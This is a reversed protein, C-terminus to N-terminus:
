GKLGYQSKLRAVNLEVIGTAQHAELLPVGDLQFFQIRPILSSARRPIKGMAEAFRALPLQGEVPARLLVDLALQLEEVDSARRGKSVERFLPSALLEAVLPHTPPPDAATPAPVQKPKPPPTPTATFLSTQPAADPAPAATVKRPAPLRAGSWWEPPAAPVTELGEDHGGVDFALWTPALLACPVVVEALSLGGHAGKTTSGWMLDERWAAAIRTSGKPRWTDAPLELEEPLPAGTPGLTRYRQGGDSGAPLKRGRLRGGAVHGHDAVLLVARKYDAALKLISSLVPVQSLSLEAHLQQAGSLDDDVANVVVAAVRDASGLVESLRQPVEGTLERKVLLAPGHPGAFPALAANQAWRKADDGESGPVHSAHEKGAFFASRSVGTLTPISALVPRRDQTRLPRWTELDAVLQALNARSMGDMLVVLLRRHEFDELFPRVIKRTVAHLPLVDKDPRGLEHWALLGRAFREDDADRVADAATLLARLAVDLPEDTTAHARVHARCWDVYGGEHNYTRAVDLLDTWAGQAEPLPRAARWGLWTALRAAFTHLATATSSGARHKALRDVLRWVATLEDPSALAGVLATALDDRLARYGPKLWLSHRALVSLGATLHDEARKCAAGVVLAQSAELHILVEDLAPLLLADVAPRALDPDFTHSIVVRVAHLLQLDGHARAAQLVLLWALLDAGRETTWVRRLLPGAEGARDPRGVWADLEATLAADGDCLHRLAAAGTGAAAATLWSRADAKPPFGGLVEGLVADWLDDATLTTHTVPRFHGDALTLARRAVASQALGPAVSRAGFRNALRRSVTVRHITNSRLRCTVDLPLQEAYDVLFVTLTDGEECRVLAHRLELEGRVPVIDWPAGDVVFTAPTGTGLLALPRMDGAARGKDLQRVEAEVEAKNLVIRVDNV